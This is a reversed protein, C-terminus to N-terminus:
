SLVSLSENPEKSLFTKCEFFTLEHWLGSLESVVVTLFLALRKIYLGYVFAHLALGTILEIQEEWSHAM